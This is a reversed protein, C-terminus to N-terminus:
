ELNYTLSRISANIWRLILGSELSIILETIKSILNVTVYLNLRHELTRIANTPRERKARLNLFRVFFDKLIFFFFIFFIATRYKEKRPMYVVVLCRIRTLMGHLFKLIPAVSFATSTKIITITIKKRIM